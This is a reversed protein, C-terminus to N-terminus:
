QFLNLHTNVIELLEWGLGVNGKSTVTVAIGSTHLTERKKEKTNKRNREKPM